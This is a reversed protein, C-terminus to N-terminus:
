ILRRTGLRPTWEWREGAGSVTLVLRTYTNMAAFEALFQDLSDAFLWLDGDSVFGAPDLELDLRRGRLMRGRFLREEGCSSFSRVSQCRKACAVALEPADGSRPAYLSLTQRLAEASAVPLLNANMQALFRWQLSEDTPPSLTASPATVNEFSAKSPSSDTPRCIDGQLLRNPIGRNCCILEMSVVREDFGDTSDPRRPMSLYYESVAGDEPMTYRVSYLMGGRSEGYLGYPRCREARGGRRVAAVDTVGLIDVYQREKVHPYIRYEEQTFDVQIPESHVSFINCASVTNVAFSGDSFAPLPAVSPGFRFTVRLERSSEALPLRKLGSLSFATLHDPCCFYRVLSMYSRNAARRQPLRLDELPPRKISLASAPLSVSSAGSAVSVSELRTLLALLRQSAQAYSGVLHFDLSDPLFRELPAAARLTVTVEGSMDSRTESETSAVELPLVDLDWMTSYLCSVGGIPRSALQTGRPVALPETFGPSLSFRMVAMSPVPMVSEPFVERLLTQILEPATQDLREHIKACLYATGELIREADPDGGQELLMPAVAPYKRAFERAGEHLM